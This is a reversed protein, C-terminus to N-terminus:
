KCRRMKENTKKNVNYFDKNRSEMAEERVLYESFFVVFCFFYVYIESKIAIVYHLERTLSRAVYWTYTLICM